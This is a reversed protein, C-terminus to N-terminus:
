SGGRVRIEPIIIVGQGGFDAGAGILLERQQLSVRLMRGQLELLETLASPRFDPGRADGQLIAGQSDLKGLLVQLEPNALVVDIVDENSSPPNTAHVEHKGLDAAKRTLVHSPGCVQLLRPNASGRSESAIQM